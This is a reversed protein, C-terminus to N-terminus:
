VLMAITAVDSILALIANSASFVSYKCHYSANVAGLLKSYNEMKLFTLPVSVNYFTANDNVDIESLLM